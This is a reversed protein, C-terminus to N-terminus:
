GGSSSFPENVWQMSVTLPVGGPMFSNALVSFWPKTYTATLTVTEEARGCATGSDSTITLTPRSGFGKVNQYFKDWVAGTGDGNCRPITPNGEADVGNRGTIMFRGAERLAHQLTLKVYFLHAFEIIALFVTFFLVAALAFEM